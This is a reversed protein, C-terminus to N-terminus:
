STANRREMDKNPLAFFHFAGIAISRILLRLLEAPDAPSLQLPETRTAFDSDERTVLETTLAPKFELGRSCGGFFFFFNGTLALM